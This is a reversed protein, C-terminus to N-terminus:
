ISEDNSYESSSTNNYWHNTSKRVTAAYIRIDTDGVTLRSTTPRSKALDRISEAPRDVM